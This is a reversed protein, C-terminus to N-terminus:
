EQLNNEEEKQRQNEEQAYKELLTKVLVCRTAGCECPVPHDKGEFDIEGDEDEEQLDICIDYHRKNEISQTLTVYCSVVDDHKVDASQPLLFVTQKWHTPPVGPRTSLTVPKASAHGAFVCDFWCAFGHFSRTATTDTLEIDFNLSQFVSTIDEQTVTKLDFSAIIKPESLLQSEEIEMISPKSLSNLKVSTVVPSFDFGYFDTWSDVSDKIHTDMNVPSLYLYSLSPFLCGDEKLWKDRAYIVSDLM